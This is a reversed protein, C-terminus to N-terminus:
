QPTVTVTTTAPAPTKGEFALTIQQVLDDQHARTAADAPRVAQLRQRITTLMLTAFPRADQGQLSTWTKVLRSVAQQQIYRNWSSTKGATYTASGFLMNVVDSVYEEPQLAQKDNAYWCLRNLTSSSLLQTLMQDALPRILREPSSSIRMIYSEGILWSPQAVINRALWDLAKKQRAKEEIRYVPGAEEASKNTHYLGAINRCVHGTYRKMQNIVATYAQELNQGMDGEEYTWTPLQPMIRKLNKVGYDSAKFPDDGLDETQARPDNDSGEGGFWMRPNKQQETTIRNLALRETDEDPADPFYTYGWRIAWKDYDNIRPFIGKESIGDEPQAVYNFRAYDMISATHGHKEVWAKNRLSDTPTASSAGMNHRLGLTHGVEHSSVFRILQGMLEDDFKVTRAREDVAGAQVMYWDHVLKMVNHYWGIHSELIEGSRPDHIQPGYANSIPSALYRIVSFRADELSMTSDEPWERATIANKFGAQEFAVNWDEVGQILYKRWQKPTAPDIYYVIQKKPEVLEGRRYRDMDEDKPELRWRVAIKKSKVMQQTDDFRNHSDTFYGVRPDFTRQRMPEKPLLVLSTNLKVTMWGAEQAAPIKSTGKVTFTKVTTVETNLPFTSIHDIYSLEPKIGGMNMRTKVTNFVSVVQNDGKFLDNVKVSYLKNKLTDTLTSDIKLSAVIPDESAARVARAIDQTSDAMAQHMMSRLLLVKDHKEWYLVVSNALEGGYMGADVPTSVFRTAALFPRGLLSDAVQFYWDDKHHQVNFLGQTAPARVEKKPLQVNIVKKKKKAEAATCAMLAVCLMIVIKKM